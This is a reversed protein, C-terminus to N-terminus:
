KTEKEGDAQSKKRCTASERGKGAGRQLSPFEGCCCGCVHQACLLGGSSHFFYLVPTAM